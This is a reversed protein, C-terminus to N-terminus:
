CHLLTDLSVPSQAIPQMNEILFKSLALFHFVNWMRLKPFPRLFFFLSFDFRNSLSLICLFSGVYCAPLSSVYLSLGGFRRLAHLELIVTKIKLFYSLFHKVGSAPLYFRYQSQIDQHGFKMQSRSTVAFSTLLKLGSNAFSTPEMVLLSSDSM